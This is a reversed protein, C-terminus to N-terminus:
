GPLVLNMLNMEARLFEGGNDIDTLGFSFGDQLGTGAAGVAGTTWAAYMATGHAELYARIRDAHKRYEPYMALISEMVSDVVMQQRQEPDISMNGPTTPGAGAAEMHRAINRIFEAQDSAPDIGQGNIYANAVAQASDYKYTGTETKSWFMKQMNAFSDAAASAAFTLGATTAPDDKEAEALKDLEMERYKWDLKAQQRAAALALKADLKTMALEQQMQAVTSADDQFRSKLAVATAYDAAARAQEVGEQQVELALRGGEALTRAGKVAGTAAARGAAASARAPALADEAVQGMASGYRNVSQAQARANIAKGKRAGKGAIRQIAALDRSQASTLAAGAGAAATTLNGYIADLQSGVATYDGMTDANLAKRTEAIGRRAARFLGRAM